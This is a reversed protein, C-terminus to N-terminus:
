KRCAGWKNSRVGEMHSVWAGRYRQRNNKPKNNHKRHAGGSIM